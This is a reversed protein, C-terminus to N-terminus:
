KWRVREGREWGSVQPAGLTQCRACRFKMTSIPRDPWKALLKSLDRFERGERCPDCDVILVRDHKIVQDVTMNGLPRRETTLHSGTPM